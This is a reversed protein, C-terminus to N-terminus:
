VPVELSRAGWTPAVHPQEDVVRNELTGIGDIEVTVVDGPVLFVPPDRRVGVGGPTGCVIVDGPQLLHITTLYHILYEIRFLLGDLSEHQRVEGNVRTTIAHGYPDGFEEATVLWPGFAGTGAFNKGPAIQTTHRQWDRVSAENYCSYGAVVSLAEAVPVHRAVRGIVVALEGEYDLQASVAPRVLRERHGVQSAAVRLFFLPYSPPRRGPAEAVHSVFTLAACWIARPDVIVPDFAVEAIHVGAGQGVSLSDLRQLGDELALLERLGNPLSSDLEALDVVREERVVGVRARGELRYSAIRM